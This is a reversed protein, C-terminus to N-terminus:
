KGPLRPGLTAPRSDQVARRAEALLRAARRDGPAIKLMRQALEVVHPWRNQRADILALAYLFDPQNPELEIARALQSRAESLRGLRNLALALNYRVRARRPQLEVARRLLEAAEPLRRDDEAVLLALSYVAQPEDPHQHLLKRFQDEAAKKQGMANYLMALNNRAPAFAPDLRLATRYQDIAAQRDDRNEDLVALNLHAGAQDASAMQGRVYEKLVRGLRQREDVGLTRTDVASLLRAAETRVWFRPDELRPVLWQRRESLTRNEFAEVATARVITDPDELLGDITEHATRDEYHSLLAVASARVIPGVEGRHTLRILPEVAEPRHQRGGAIAHAFHPQSRRATGYWEDVRRMAWAAPQDDHCQNCANPTGLEVSLDPRPIRLSHDRRPDVVMYTRQPMHCELCSAGPGGTSHHHHAPADYKAPVHCQACLRNGSFKLRASHPDHCDTCRVGERYMRSQLFSGYVYVEGRIQGDAFYLQPDDILQPAFYDLMPKGAEFGSQLVRRRAHCHACMEIEARNENPKLAPRGVTTSKARRNLEALGYGHRRDWFLSKSRALRTHLSGPGHCAECSVDIESFTTHYANHQLDFNKHLNTSHCDACMYNWNQLPGTWHLPDDHALKEDPYLHFWRRHKTDWAIPLAQVRGRDLEVLYQQLPHVGFTYKVKFTEARGQSGDTTVYFADGRRFMRSTVGFHTLERDNFDGLVTKPTAVDMALDHDSGHWRNEFDRHCAACTQRGVYSRRVKAPYAIWWDAAGALLALLFLGFFVWGAQRVRHVM